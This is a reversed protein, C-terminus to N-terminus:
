AAAEFPSATAAAARPLTVRFTSGEGEASEVTIEGGHGEIIAKVISLGLGTGQIASNLAADARFFRTFLGTQDAASIGMGTDSIEVVVSDDRALVSVEVAGGAPTFKLANSLLNDIVQSLRQRDGVVEAVDCRGICLDLGGETAHPLAATFSEEVLEVVDVPKKELAMQGSRVQAVFLLDSVLSMLRQTNRSMVTLFQTQEETLGAEDEILLELYGNISTLPTRLEHSVLAVLEDKMRDVELLRANQARVLSVKEAARVFGIMRAIVLLGVGGSAIGVLLAEDGQITGPYFADLIRLTPGLMSAAALLGLYGWRVHRESAHATPYLDTSPHLAAAAILVVALLWGFDFNTATSYVSTLTLWNFAADAALLAASGGAFLMFQARRAGPGVVIRCLLAFAVIDLLAYAIQSGRQSFSLGAASAYHSILTVWAVQFAAFIAICVDLFAIRSTRASLALSLGIILAVNGLLFFADAVTGFPYTGTELLYGETILYGVCWFAPLCALVYWPKARVPRHVRVGVLIAVVAVADIGASILNGWRASAVVHYALAAAVGTVLFVKWLDRRLSM